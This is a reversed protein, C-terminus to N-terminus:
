IRTETTDQQKRALVFVPHYTLTCGGATGFLESYTRCFDSLDKRTWKRRSLGNVGTRKLHRLVDAPTPFHLTSLYDSM